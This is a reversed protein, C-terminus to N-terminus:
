RHRKFKGAVDKKVMSNKQNNNNSSKKSGYRSRRNDRNGGQNNGQNQNSDNPRRRRTQFRKNSFCTECIAFKFDEDLNIGCSACTRVIKNSLLTNLKDIAEGKNELLDLDSYEFNKGNFHRSLWQFLEVCKIGTELYDIDNSNTNIDEAHIQEGRVYKNLMWVFYQVHELLGLNVPACAFGFIESSSLAKLYDAEEVMETLEIMEKLDVCYFPRKFTMTNFLRLFESLKLEPLSNIRLAHNVQNFIDIDPGVMCQTKQVLDMSLARQVKQLGDEVSSLCTVEGIPFRNFRGARGAIQKIESDSIPFAENDIYKTLTSFVIRKIPLNMGMAIADTAVMVDTEEKDFKRAQERRVEPSLRGYVISVRLGKTEIESKYKLANKRSFVILTDSKELEHSKITRNAVTLETMRNYNKVELTDGCLDCIEKVLEYVSPDGCIHIEPAVMNVLARTWAWGRQSDSIMQIEDIVCCSFEEHFKAMEITSSFHTCDEVEIVEEGTLLTTKVGLENLTDYLEGALLRLPALYCGSPSKALAQIAHYTKGSNTPGMHYIVKRNIRRAASHIWFEGLYEKLINASIDKRKLAMIAKVLKSFEGELYSEPRWINTSLQRFWRGFEDDTILDARLNQARLNARLFPLVNKEVHSSSLESPYSFLNKLRDKIQKELKSITSRKLQFRIGFIAKEMEKQLDRYVSSLDHLSKGEELIKKLEQAVEEIRQTCKKYINDRIKAKHDALCQFCSCPLDKNKIEDVQGEKFMKQTTEHKQIKEEVWGSIFDWCGQLLDEKVLGTETDVFFCLQAESFYCEDMFCTDIIVERHILERYSTSFDKEFLAILSPYKEFTAQLHRHVKELQALVLLADQTSRVSSEEETFGDVKLIVKRENDFIERLANYDILELQGDASM